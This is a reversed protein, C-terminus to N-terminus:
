LPVAEKEFFLEPLVEDGVFVQEGGDGLVRANRAPGSQLDARARARERARKRRPRLLHEGVLDVFFQAGHKRFRQLVARVHAKYEAVKQANVKRLQFFRERGIRHRRVQGVVDGRREDHLEDLARFLRLREDHHHLVVHCLAEAGRGVGGFVAGHGGGDGQPRACLDHPM